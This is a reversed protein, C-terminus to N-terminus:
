QRVAPLYSKLCLYGLFPYIFHDCMRGPWLKRGSRLLQETGDPVSRCLYAPFSRICCNEQVQFCAKEIQNRTEQLKCRTQWPEITVDLMIHFLNGYYSPFRLCRYLSARWKTCQQRAIIVKPLWVYFYIIRILINNVAESSRCWIFCCRKIVIM